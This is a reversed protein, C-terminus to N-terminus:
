LRVIELLVNECVAMWAPREAFNKRSGEGSHAIVGLGDADGIVWRDDWKGFKLNYEVYEFPAKFQCFAIEGEKGYGHGSGLVSVTGLYHKGGRTDVNISIDYGEKILNYIMYKVIKLPSSGGLESNSDFLQITIKEPSAGESILKKIQELDKQWQFNVAKGKENSRVISVIALIVIIIVITWFM